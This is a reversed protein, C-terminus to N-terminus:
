ITLFSFIAGLITAGYVRVNHTRTCTQSRSPLYWALIYLFPINANQSGELAWWLIAVPADHTYNMMLAKIIVTM